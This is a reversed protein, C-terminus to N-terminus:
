NFSEHNLYSEVGELEEEGECRAVHPPAAVESWFQLLHAAFDVVINVVTAFLIHCNLHLNVPFVDLHWPLVVELVINLLSFVLHHLPVHQECCAIKVMTNLGEPLVHDKTWVVRHSCAVDGVPHLKM